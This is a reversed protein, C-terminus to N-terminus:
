LEINQHMYGQRDSAMKGGLQLWAVKGKEEAREPDWRPELTKEPVGKGEETATLADYCTTTIPGNVAALHVYSKSLLYSDQVIKGGTLATFVSARFPWPTEGLTECLKSQFEHKDPELVM